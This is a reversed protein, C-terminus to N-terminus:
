GSVELKLANGVMGTSPNLLFINIGAAKEMPIDRFM